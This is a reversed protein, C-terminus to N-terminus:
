ASASFTAGPAPIPAVLTVEDLPLAGASDLQGRARGQRHAFCGVPEGTWDVADGGPLPIVDTGRVVGAVVGTPGAFSVYKM